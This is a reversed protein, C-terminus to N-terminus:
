LANGAEISPLHEGAFVHLMTINVQIPQMRLSLTQECLGNCSQGLHISHDCPFNTLQSIVCTNGSVVTVEAFIQTHM